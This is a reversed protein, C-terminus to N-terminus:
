LSSLPADCPQRGCIMPCPQKARPRSGSGPAAGAIGFRHQRDRQIAVPVQAEPPTPLAPFRAACEPVAIGDESPAGVPRRLASAHAAALVSVGM